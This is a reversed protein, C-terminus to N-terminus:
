RPIGYILVTARAAEPQNYTLRLTTFNYGIGGGLIFARGKWEMESEDIILILNIHFCMKAKQKFDVDAYGGSQKFLVEIEYIPVSLPHMSGFQMSYCMVEVNPLIALLLIGRTNFM